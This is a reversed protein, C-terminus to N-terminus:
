PGVCAARGHARCRRPVARRKAEIGQPRTELWASQDLDLVDMDCSLRITGDHHQTTPGLPIVLRQIQDAIHGCCLFGTAKICLAEADLGKECVLFTATEMNMLRM